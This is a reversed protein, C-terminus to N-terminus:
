SQLLEEPTLEYGNVVVYDNTMTIEGNMDVDEPEENMYEMIMTNSIRGEFDVEPEVTQSEISIPKNAMKDLYKQIIGMSVEVAKCYIKADIFIPLIRIELTGHKHYQYNLASYRCNPYNDNRIYLQQEGRYDIHCMSNHNDLRDWFNQNRINAKKGWRTLEQIFHIFFEKTCLLEFAQVNDFSVHFHGGCSSNMDEPYYRYVWNRWTGDIPMPYSVIEGAHGSEQNYCHDGEDNCCYDCDGCEEGGYELGDVSSDDHWNYSQYLWNRHDHENDPMENWGGELEIGIKQIKCQPTMLVHTNQCNECCFCFRDSDFTMDMYCSSCNYTDSM